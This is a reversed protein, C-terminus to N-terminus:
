RAAPSTRCRPRQPTAARSGASPQGPGPRRSRLSWFVSVAVVCRAAGYTSCRDPGCPVRSPCTTFATLAAGNPWRYSARSTGSRYRMGHRALPAVFDLHGVTPHARRSIPFGAPLAPRRNVNSSRATAATLRPSRAAAVAKAPSAITSASEGSAHVRQATRAKSKTLSPSPLLTM